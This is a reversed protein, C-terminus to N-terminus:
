NKNKRFFLQRPYETGNLYYIRRDLHNESYKKSFASINVGILIKRRRGGVAKLQSKKFRISIPKIHYEISGYRLSTTSIRSNRDFIETLSPMRVSWKIISDYDSDHILSKNDFIM